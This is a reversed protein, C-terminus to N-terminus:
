GRRTNRSNLQGQTGRRTGAHTSETAEMTAEMSAAGPGPRGRSAIVLKALEAKAAAVKTASKVMATAPATARGHCTMHLALGQRERPVQWERHTSLVRHRSQCVMICFLSVGVVLASSEARRTVASATAQHMLVNAYEMAYGNRGM